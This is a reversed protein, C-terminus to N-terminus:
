APSWEAILDRFGGDVKGSWKATGLEFVVNTRTTAPIAVWNTYIPTQGTTQNYATQGNRSGGDYTWIFPATTTNPKIVGMWVDSNAISLVFNEEALSTPQWPYVSSGYNRAGLADKAYTYSGGSEPILLYYKGNPGAVAGDSLFNAPPSSGTIQGSLIGLWLSM